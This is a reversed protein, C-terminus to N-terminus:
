LQMYNNYDYLIGIAVISYTYSPEHTYTAIGYVIAIYSTLTYGYM